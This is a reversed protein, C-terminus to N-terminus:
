KMFVSFSIAQITIPHNAEAPLTV